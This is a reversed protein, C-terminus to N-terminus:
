EKVYKAYEELPVGLKKAMAVQNSTLRVQKKGRGSSASRNVSAVTQAPRKGKPGNKFKHPFAEAMRKDLESYYEDSSPDIGEDEILQKHIGFAAYTMTEDSGFWERESAWAEAKPDPRRPAAPQQRAQIMQQRQLEAHQKQIQSDRRAQAARDAQIALATIRRNAEVVGQTDGIEMANKLANEATALESQVRGSFETVYSSDLTNLHEKLSTLGNRRPTLHGSM